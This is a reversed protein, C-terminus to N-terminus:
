RALVDSKTKSSLRSARRALMFARRRRGLRSQWRPSPAADSNAEGKVGGEFLALLQRTYLDLDTSPDHAWRLLGSELAGSVATAVVAPDFPRFAGGRQGATLEEILWAQQQRWISLHDTVESGGARTAALHRLALIETRHNRVYTLHATVFASIRAWCDKEASAAAIAAALVRERVNALVADFLGDKSGFYYCIIGKAVKAEAAVRSLSTGAAGDRALVRITCDVIHRRRQGEM